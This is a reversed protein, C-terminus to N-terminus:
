KDLALAGRLRETNMLGPEGTPFSNLLAILDRRRIPDAAAERPTVGGLAPIHEDLWREEYQRVAQELVAAIQPDQLDPGAPLPRAPASGSVARDALLANVDVREESVVAFELGTDEIVALILDLRNVSMTSITVERGSVELLGGITQGEEIPGADVGVTWQGDEGPGFVETFAKAISRRGAVKIVATTPELLDGTTTTFTTPAFRDTMMAVLEIPEPCSDLLDIVEPRQTLSVPEIGGFFGFREDDVPLVLSVFLMGVHVDQSGLVEHVFVREGDLVNRVAMGVGREVEEVEYLGRDVNIWKLALDFEDAPLLPGRTDAYAELVGGEFLMASMVLPDGLAEIVGRDGSYRGREQALELIDYRWPGDQLFASAKHYLWTARRRLPLPPGGRHCQKVKRGSGCWCPDNRRIPVVDDSRYTLLMQYSGDSADIGARDLLMMARAADGRDNALAALSELAPGFAPDIGLASEYAREAELAFGARDESRGLLWLVAPRVQHPVMPGLADALLRLGMDGGPGGGLAVVDLAVAVDPHALLGLDIGAERAGSQLAEIIAPTADPLATSTAPDERREIAGFIVEALMQQAADHLHALEHLADEQAPSLGYVRVLHDLTAHLDPGDDDPGDDDFGRDDREDDDLM